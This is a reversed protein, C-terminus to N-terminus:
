DDITFTYITKAEYYDEPGIIISPFHSHHIADPLGQTELCLALYKKAKVGEATQYEGGIQNGTYVVVCPQNTEVILKRGTEHDRLIIEENFHDDLLFPHDYGNGVLINQENKSLKGDLIKRSNRFDFVSGEVHSIKGTPIFQKDLELFRHSKLTLEHNLIDKKANGSLNFYSHNTINLLTKQDTYGKCTFVWQNDNNLLYTVQLRVNGPYGEEGDPSVYSFRIGVASDTKIEEADWVREHLGQYGGHLHNNGENKPLQYVKGELEFKGQGIRGAVRGILAGFYTKNRIYDEVNNFGLVINEFMGNRDPALIETVICGLNTCTLRMGNNNELTYTYIKQGNLSGFDNIRIEM